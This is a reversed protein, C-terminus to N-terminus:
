SVTIKKGEIKKDIEALVRQKEEDQYAAPDYAEVTSQEILQEALTLEAPRIDTREVNLDAMSRVEDAYLLQQLVLGDDNARVQV